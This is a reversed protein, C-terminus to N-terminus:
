VRSEVSSARLLSALCSSESLVVVRRKPIAPAPLGETASQGRALLMTVSDRLATRETVGLLFAAAEITAASMLLNASSSGTFFAFRTKEEWATGMDGRSASYAQALPRITGLSNEGSTPISHFSM